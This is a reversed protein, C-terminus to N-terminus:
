RMTYRERYLAVIREWTYCEARRSGAQALRDRLAGDTLITTIAAALAPTDAPDVVLGERDNRAIEGAGGCSSVIVPRGAGLAEVVVIGFPEVRSPLVFLEAHAMAWAVQPRSLVGPFAVRDRIGLEEARVILSARAAGDGGIVLGLDPMDQSVQAFADLLLDFGKKPVVRGLALVFRERPVDLAVQQQQPDLDIGNPVVTGKGPALGFREVADDLVFQSCATVARARTLGVRLGARLVLSKEFVDNDDMVTEGQLTVVVPVGFLAGLVLAYIGNASFCQVHFVDPRLRRTARGMRRLAAVAAGPFAVLGRVTMTPLPTAFRRVQVGDIIEAAALSSPHRITWVEVILNDDALHRALRSTLEEVGGVAPAYASSFLVIRRPLPTAGSGDPSGGTLTMGYLM